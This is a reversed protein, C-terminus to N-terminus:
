YAASHYHNPNQSRRYGLMSAPATTPGHDPPPFSTFRNTPEQPPVATTLPHPGIAHRRESISMARPGLPAGTEVLAPGLRKKSQIESADDESLLRKKKPIKYGVPFGLARMEQSVQSNDKSGAKEQYSLATLGQEQAPDQTSDTIETAEQVERAAKRAEAKEIGLELAKCMMGGIAFYPFMLIHRLKVVAYVGLTETNTDITVRSRMLQKLSHDVRDADSSGQGDLRRKAFQGKEQWEQLALIDLNRPKYPKLPMRLARILSQTHLVNLDLRPTFTDRVDLYWALCQTLGRADLGSPLYVLGELLQNFSPVVFGHRPGNLPKSPRLHDTYLHRDPKCQFNSVEFDSLDNKLVDCFFQSVNTISLPHKDKGRFFAQMAIITDGLYANNALRLAIGKWRIHHPYFAMIEKASIPVEPPFLADAPVAEPFWNFLDSLAFVEVHPTEPTGLIDKMNANRTEDFCPREYPVLTRMFHDTDPDSGCTAKAIPATTATDSVDVSLVQPRTHDNKPTSRVENLVDNAPSNPTVVQAQGDAPEGALIRQVKDTGQCSFKLCVVLRIRFWVEEDEEIVEGVLPGSRQFGAISYARSRFCQRSRRAQAIRKLTRERTSSAVNKPVTLMGGVDESHALQKNLTAVSGAMDFDAAGGIGMPLRCEEVEEEDYRLITDQPEAAKKAAYRRNEKGFMGIQADWGSQDWLTSERERYSINDEDEHRSVGTVYRWDRHHLLHTSSRQPRSARLLIEVPNRIETSDRVVPM